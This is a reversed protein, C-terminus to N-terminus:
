TNDAQNGDIGIAASSEGTASIAVTNGDASLAVAIGFNDGANSNSAKAYATLKPAFGGDGVGADGIAYGLPDFGVRGCGTVALVGVLVAIRRMRDITDTTRALRPGFHDLTATPEAAFGATNM